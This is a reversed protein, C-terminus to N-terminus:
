RALVNLSGPEIEIVHEGAPLMGPEGDLHYGVPRGVTFSIRTGQVLSIAPHDLRDGRAAPGLLKIGTVPGVPRILCGDLLGDTFNADPAFRFGGGTFPGNCIEVLLFRDSIEITESGKSIVWSVDDGRYNLITNLSAVLYRRRGLWRWLRSARLSVLGSALLGVSNVFFRGDMRGTDFSSVRGTTIVELGSAVDPCGIGRAFDNGSGSPLVGFPCDTGVLGAATEHVTGDGGVAVVLDYEAAAAMALETAHGVGTTAHLSAKFGREELLGVADAGHLRNKGTGAFPNAIVAVNKM